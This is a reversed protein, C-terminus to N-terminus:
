NEIESFLHFQKQQHRLSVCVVNVNSLVNFHSHNINYFYVRNYVM